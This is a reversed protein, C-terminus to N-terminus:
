QPGTRAQEEPPEGTIEPDVGTGGDYATAPRTSWGTSSGGRRPSSATIRVPSPAPPCVAIVGGAPSAAAVSCRTADPILDTPLADRPEHAGRRPKTATVTTASSSIAAGARATSAGSGDGEGVGETVGATGVGVGDGETGTDVGVGLADTVGVPRGAGVGVRLAVGLGVRDAAGVM